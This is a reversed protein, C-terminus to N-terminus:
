SSWQKKLHVVSMFHILANFPFRTNKTCNCRFLMISISVASQLSVPDSYAQTQFFLALKGTNALKRSENVGSLLCSVLSLLLVDKIKKFVLKPLCAVALFQYFSMRQNKFYM